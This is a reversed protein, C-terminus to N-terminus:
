RVGAPVIVPSAAPTAVPWRYPVAALQLEDRGDIKVGDIQSRTLIIDADTYQGALIREIVQLRTAWQRLSDDAPRGAVRRSAVELRSFADPRGVHLHCAAAVVALGADDPFRAAADDALRCAEDWRGALMLTTAEFGVVATQSRGAPNRRCRVAADDPRGVNALVIQLVEECYDCPDLQVAREAAAVARDFQHFSAFLWAAVVAREAAGADTDTAVAAATRRFWRHYRAAADPPIADLVLAATADFPGLAVLTRIEREIAGFVLRADTPEADAAAVLAPLGANLELLKAEPANLVQTYLQGISAGVAASWRLAKPDAGGLRAAWQRDWECAMIQAGSAEGAQGMRALRLGTRVAVPRWDAPALETARDLARCAEAWDTQGVTLGLARWADSSGPHSRM